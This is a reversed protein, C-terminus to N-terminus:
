LEGQEYYINGYYVLSAPAEELVYLYSDTWCGMSHYQQVKDMDVIVLILDLFGWMSGPELREPRAKM